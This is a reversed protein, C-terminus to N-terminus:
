ASSCSGRGCSRGAGLGTRPQPRGVQHARLRPRRGAPHRSRALRGALVVRAPRDPRLRLRGARGPAAPLQHRLAPPPALLASAREPHARRRGRLLLDDQAGRRPVQVRPPDVPCAASRSMYGILIAIRLIGEVLWFLFASDLEDKILSTLRGPGRLLPRDRPGARRHRDPDLWGASRRSSRGASIQSNAAIQMARFGLKLSEVLAVVGRVVPLAARPPAQAWSM